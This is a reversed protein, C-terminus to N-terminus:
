PFSGPFSREEPLEVALSFLIEKARSLSILESFGPKPM